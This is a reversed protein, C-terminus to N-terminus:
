FKKFGELILFCKSKDSFMMLFPVSQMNNVLVKQVNRVIMIIFLIPM